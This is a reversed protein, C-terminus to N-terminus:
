TATVAVGVNVAVAVGVFVGVSVDVAVGVFVAVAVCVAVLVLVEVAVGESVVVAVSVSVGVAVAVSVNVGVGVAVAVTVTVGVLVEVGDFGGVTVVSGAVNTVLEDACSFPEAFGFPVAANPCKRYLVVLGPVQSSTKPVLSGIELAESTARPAPM